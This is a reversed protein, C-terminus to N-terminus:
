LSASALEAELVEQMDRALDDYTADIERVWQGTQQRLRSIGALEEFDGRGASERVNGSPRYARALSDPHKTEFQSAFYDHVQVALKEEYTDAARIHGYFDRPFWATTFSEFVATEWLGGSLPVTSVIFRRGTGANVVRTVWEGEPTRERVGIGPDDKM